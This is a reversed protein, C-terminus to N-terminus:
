FMKKKTETYREMYNDYGDVHEFDKMNFNNGCILLSSVKSDTLLTKPIASLTLQNYELKLIKLKSAKAIESSLVSIHNENLNLETVYMKGIYDPVEKIKNKSLDILTLHKLECLSKPFIEIQNDSLNIEKLNILMSLSSPLLVINNSVATLNELKILKGIEEPLSTLRNNDIKFSKLNTFTSIHSPLIQFKNNSLNLQRLFPSLEKLKSPFENLSVNCLNLTGTKKATEYHHKTSSNGM